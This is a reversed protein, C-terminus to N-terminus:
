KSYTFVQFTNPFYTNPYFPGVGANVKKSFDASGEAAATYLKKTQHDFAMTRVGPRTALAEVVKYTDPSTQEFIVLSADLGNATFIRRTEADYVVGGNQRGIEHTFVTKGSEADMVALVPKVAGKGRCGIFLRKNAVDMAMGSAVECGEIKWEATVQLAKMDVRFVANKDRSDIYFNGKGDMASGDIRKSPVKVVGVQKLSPIEFIIVDTSDGTAAMKVALRKTAPDYFSDDIEEGLKIPVKADGTSLKFPTISGTANNSIGLDFEPILTGGSAGDSGAITRIVKKAKLDFVQLGESRHGIYLHSRAADLTLYDWGEGKGDITTASKLHYGDFAAVPAV